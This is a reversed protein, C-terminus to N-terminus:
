VVEMCEKNRGAHRTTTTSMIVPQLSGTVMGVVGVGFGVVSVKVPVSVTLPPTVWGNEAAVSPVTLAVSVLIPGSSFGVTPRMSPVQFPLAQATTMGLSAAILAVTTIPVTFWAPWSQTRM